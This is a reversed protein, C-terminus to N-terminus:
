GRDDGEMATPLQYPHAHTPPTQTQGSNLEHTIAQRRRLNLLSSSVLSNRHLKFTNMDRVYQLALKCGMTYQM